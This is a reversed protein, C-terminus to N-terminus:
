WRAATWTKATRESIARTRQLSENPLHPYCIVANVDLTSCLLPPHAGGVDGGSKVVPAGWRHKACHCQKHSSRHKHQRASSGSAPLAERPSSWSCMSRRHSSSPEDLIGKPVVQIRSRPAALVAIMGCRLVPEWRTDHLANTEAEHQQCMRQIAISGRACSLPVCSDKKSVILDLKPSTLRDIEANMFLPRLVRATAVFCWGDVM